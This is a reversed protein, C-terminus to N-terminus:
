QEEYQKVLFQMAEIEDKVTDQKGYLDFVTWYENPLCRFMYGFPERDYPNVLVKAYQSGTIMDFEPLETRGNILECAAFRDDAYGFPNPATGTHCAWRKNKPRWSIIGIFEGNRTVIRVEEDSMYSPLAYSNLIETDM